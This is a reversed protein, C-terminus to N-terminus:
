MRIDLGWGSGNWGSVIISRGSIICSGGLNISGMGIGRGIPGGRGSVGVGSDVGGGELDLEFDDEFDSGVPLCCFDSEDKMQSDTEM